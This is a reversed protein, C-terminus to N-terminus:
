GQGVLGATAPARDAGRRRAGAPRAAGRVARGTRRRTPRGGVGVEPMPPRSSAAIAVQAIRYLALDTFGRSVNHQVADLLGPLLSSAMQDADYELPNLITVTRRRPDDEPLGFADWVTPSVFPFPLVEVYGDEALARSM